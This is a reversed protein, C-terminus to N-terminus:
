PVSRTALRPVEGRFGMGRDILMSQLPAIRDLAIM